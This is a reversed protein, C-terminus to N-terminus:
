DPAINRQMLFEWTDNSYMPFGYWPAQPLQGLAGASVAACTENQGYGVLETVLSTASNQMDDPQLYSAFAPATQTYARLVARGTAPAYWILDKSVGKVMCSQSACHQNHLPADSSRPNSKTWDTTREVVVTDFTGAGVKLKETRVVENSAVAHYQYQWSASPGLRATVTEDVTDTWQKGQTLPFVLKRLQGSREARIATYTDVRENLTTSTAGNNMEFKAIGSDISKLTLRVPKGDGNSYCWSTGIAPLTRSKVESAANVRPTACLGVVALLGCIPLAFTRVHYRHM